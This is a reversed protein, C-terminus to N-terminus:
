DLPHHFPDEPDDQGCADGRRAGPSVTLEDPPLVIRPLREPQEGDGLLLAERERERPATTQRRANGFLALLSRVPNRVRLPPLAAAAGHQVFYGWNLAAASGLALVAGLVLGTTM